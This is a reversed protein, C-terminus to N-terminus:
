TGEVCCQSCFNGFTIYNWERNLSVAVGGSRCFRSCSDNACQPSNEVTRGCYECPYPNGYPEGSISIGQYNNGSNNYVPNSCIPESITLESNIYEIGGCPREVAVGGSDSATSGGDGTGSSGGNSNSIDGNDTINLTFDGTGQDWARM